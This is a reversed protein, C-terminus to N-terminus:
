RDCDGCRNRQRDRSRSRQDGAPLERLQNEGIHQYALRNCCRCPQARDHPEDNPCSRRGGSESLVAPPRPADVNAFQSGDPDGPQCRSRAVGVGQRVGQDGAQGQYHQQGGGLRRQEVLQKECHAGAPREIHGREGSGAGADDAEADHHEKENEDGPPPAERQDQHSRQQKQEPSPEGGLQRVPIERDPVVSSLGGVAASDLRRSDPQLHQAIVGHRTYTEPAELDRSDLRIVSHPELGM